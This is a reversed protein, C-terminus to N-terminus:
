ILRFLVSLNNFLNMINLLIIFQFFYNTHKNPLLHLAERVISKLLNVKNFTSEGELIEQVLCCGVKSTFVTM